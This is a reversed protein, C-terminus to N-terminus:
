VASPQLIWRSGEKRAEICKRTKTRTKDVLIKSQRNFADDGKVTIVVCAGKPIKKFTDPHKSLYRDFELSLKINKGIFKESM